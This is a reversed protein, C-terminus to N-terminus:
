CRAKEVPVSTFRESAATLPQARVVGHARYGAHEFERTMAGDLAPDTATCETDPGRFARIQGVGSRGVFSRDHLVRYGAHPFSPVGVALREPGRSETGNWSAAIVSRETGQRRLACTAGCLLNQQSVASTFLSVHPQQILRVAASHSTGIFSVYRQLVRCVEAPRFMSSSFSHVHSQQVLRVAAPRSARSSSSCLSPQHPRSTSNGLRGRRAECGALPLAERIWAVCRATGRRPCGRRARCGIGSSRKTGGRSAM